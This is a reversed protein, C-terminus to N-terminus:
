DAFPLRDEVGCLEFVRQVDEPGRLLMLRGSDARSRAQAEILLRVGTSEVFTLGSLDVVISVVDTSEVRRLEQEVRGAGAVDLEGAVAITHVDGERESLMTMQGLELLRSVRRREDQQPAQQIM